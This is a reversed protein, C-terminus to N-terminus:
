PKTREDFDEFRLSTPDGLQAARHSDNPPELNDDCGVRETLVALGRGGSVTLERGSSDLLKVLWFITVHIRGAFRDRHQFAVTRTCRGDPQPTLGMASGRASLLFDVFPVSSLLKAVFPTSEERAISFFYISVERSAEMTRLLPGMVRRSGIDARNGAATELIHQVATRGGIILVREHVAALYWRENARVQNPAARPAYNPGEFGFAMHGDLVEFTGKSRPLHLVIERASTSLEVLAVASTTEDFGFAGNKLWWGGGDQVVNLVTIASVDSTDLHAITLWRRLEGIPFFSTTSSKSKETRRLFEDIPAPCFLADVTSDPWLAYRNTSPKESWPLNSLVTLLIFVVVITLCGRRLFRVCGCGRPTPTQPPKPPDVSAARLESISRELMARQDSNLAAWYAARDTESLSIYRRAAEQWLPDM